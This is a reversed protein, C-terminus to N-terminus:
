NGLLNALVTNRMVEIPAKQGTWIEFAAAGQNVFLAVGDIIRCGIERAKTVLQTNIPNYVLEFVIQMPNLCSVPVAPAEASHPYMGVSTTQIIIDAKSAADIYETSFAIGSGNHMPMASVRDEGADIALQKLAEAKGISRNVIDIRGCGARLLELVITQAVGGAGVCVVRRGKIDVGNETLSTLIGIGDTNYGILRGDRNVITNVNRLYVASPDLDDLYDLVAVKHPITVNIGCLGLARVGKIAEGLHSPDVPFPVYAYDLGSHEFAANHMQPSLSHGIPHGIVGIIKTRGNIM